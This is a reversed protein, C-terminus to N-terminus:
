QFLPILHYHRTDAFPNMRIQEVEARIHNQLTNIMDTISDLSVPAKNTNPWRISYQISM